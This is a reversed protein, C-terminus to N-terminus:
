AGEDDATNQAHPCNYSHSTSPFRAVGEAVLAFTRPARPSDSRLESREGRYRVSLSTHKECMSSRVDGKRELSQVLGYSSISSSSSSHQCRDPSRLSDKRSCAARTRLRLRSSRAPVQVARSHEFPRLNCLVKCLPYIAREAHVTLQYIRRLHQLWCLFNNNAIYRENVNMSLSGERMMAFRQWQFVNCAGGSYAQAQDLIERCQPKWIEM